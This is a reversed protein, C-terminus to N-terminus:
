RRGREDRLPMLLSSFTDGVSLCIPTRAGRHEMRMGCAKVADGVLVKAYSALFRPDMAVAEAICTKEWSTTAM